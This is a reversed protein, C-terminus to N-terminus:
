VINAIKAKKKAVGIHPESAYSPALYKSSSDALTKKVSEVDSLQEATVSVVPIGAAYGWVNAITASVRTSSFSGTNMVVAIGSIDSKNVKQENLFDAIHQLLQRNGDEKRHEVGNEVLLIRVWGRESLDIGLTM